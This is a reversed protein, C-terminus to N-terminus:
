TRAGKLEAELQDLESLAKAMELPALPGARAVPPTGGLAGDRPEPSIIRLAYAVSDDVRARLEQREAEAPTPPPATDGASADATAAADATPPEDAPGAAQKDHNAQYAALLELVAAKRAPEFGIAMAARLGADFRAYDFTADPADLSKVSTLQALNNAPIPTLSIEHVRAERIIQVAKGGIARIEPRHMPLWGVSVGTLHGDKALQRARQGREDKTFGARFFLGEAISKLQVISGIIRDISDGHWDLLPLKAKARSWDQASKAFAGVEFMDDQYDVNGYVAALGTIEGSGADTVAVDKLALQKREM